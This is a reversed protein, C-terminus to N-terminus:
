RGSSTRVSGWVAATIVTGAAKLWIFFSAVRWAAFIAPIPRTAKICSGTAATILTIRWEGRSPIKRTYSRPPPVKSTEMASFMLHTYSVPLDGECGSIALMQRGLALLIVGFAAGVGLGMLIAQRVVRNARQTDGRGLSQSMLVLIGVSLSAFAGSFLNMYMNSANIAAIADDSIRGAFYTDVTGLFIQSLQELMVPIALSFLVKLYRGAGPRSLSVSM